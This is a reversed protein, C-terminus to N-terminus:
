EKELNQIKELYETVTSACCEKPVASVAIRFRGKPTTEINLKLNHVFVSVDGVHTLIDKKFQLYVDISIDLTVGIVKDDNM